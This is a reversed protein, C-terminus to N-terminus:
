KKDMQKLFLEKKSLKMLHESEAIRTVLGLTEILELCKEIFFKNQECKECKEKVDDKVMKGKRNLEIEDFDQDKNM